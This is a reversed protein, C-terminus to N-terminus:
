NLIFINFNLVLAYSSWLLYPIMLTFSIKDKYYYIKTLDCKSIVGGAILKKMTRNTWAQPRIREFFLASRHVSNRLCTHETSENPPIILEEDEIRLDIESEATKPNQISKNINNLIYIPLKTDM